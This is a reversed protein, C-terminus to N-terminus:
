GARKQRITKRESFRDYLDDFLVPIRRHFEQLLAFMLQRIQPHAQPACRLSFVHRWERINCTMVIETKLSNPLVSRAEEPKAGMEILRMYHAEVAKMAEVWERYAPSDESWFPPRIVTIGKGFRDQSYNAYRTSEQSYSAVRHRVLEHTVGRDCTLKVTIATHEIVSHHGSNLIRRVFGRASDGTMRDESKYCTRGAREIKRIISDGDIPDLIEFSPEIIKM